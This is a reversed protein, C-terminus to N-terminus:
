ATDLRLLWSSITTYVLRLYNHLDYRSPAIKISAFTLPRSRLSPMDYLASSSRADRFDDVRRLNNRYM